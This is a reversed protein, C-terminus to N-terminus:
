KLEFHDFDIDKEMGFRRFGLVRKCPVRTLFYGEHIERGWM